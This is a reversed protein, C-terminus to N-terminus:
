LGGRAKRPPRRARPRLEQVTVTTRRCGTGPRYGTSYQRRLKKAQKNAKKLTLFVIPPGLYDHWYWWGDPWIRPNHIRIVYWPPRALYDYRDSAVELETSIVKIQTASM